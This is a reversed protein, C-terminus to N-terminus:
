LGRWLECYKCEVKEALELTLDVAQAWVALETGSGIHTHVRVVELDYKNVLEMAKDFYEYWIGFSSAGGGVNV